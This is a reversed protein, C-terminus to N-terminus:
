HLWKFWHSCNKLLVEDPVVTFQVEFEIDLLFCNAGDVQYKLANHRAEHELVIFVNQHLNSSAGNRRELGGYRHHLM